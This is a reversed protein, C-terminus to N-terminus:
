PTYKRKNAPNVLKMEFRHRTWKEALPGGPVKADLNMVHIGADPSSTERRKASASGLRARGCGGAAVDGGGADVRQGGGRDGDADARNGAPGALVAAFEPRAVSVHQCHRPEPASRPITSRCHLHDVRRRQPLRLGDDRLRRCAPGPRAPRPFNVGAPTTAFVLGFTYHMLHFIVFALIVLGTLLMHRSAWTAQITDEYAYRVRRANRNRVKLRVTLYVHLLFAALLGGRALWLLAGREKLFLAYGNLADRGKYILLNGSVHVFVFGTLALGTLAILYKSGVTSGFTPLLWGTLTRGNSNTRKQRKSVIGATM